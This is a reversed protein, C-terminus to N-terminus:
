LGWKEKRIRALERTAAYANEYGLAKAVNEFDSECKEMLENKKFTDRRIAEKAGENLASLSELPHRDM